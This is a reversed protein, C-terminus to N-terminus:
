RVRLLKINKGHALSFLGVLCVIKRLMELGNAKGVPYAELDIKRGNGQLILLKFFCRWPFIIYPRKRIAAELLDLRPLDSFGIDTMTRVMNSSVADFTKMVKAQYACRLFKFVILLLIDGGQHTPTDGQKLIQKLHRRVANAM